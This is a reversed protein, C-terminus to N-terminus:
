NTTETNLNTLKQRNESDINSGVHQVTTASSCFVYQKTARSRSSNLNLCPSLTQRMWFTDNSFSILLIIAM